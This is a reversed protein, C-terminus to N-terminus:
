VLINIICQDYMYLEVRVITGFLATINNHPHTSHVTVTHVSYSGIADQRATDHQCKVLGGSRSCGRDLLSESAQDM